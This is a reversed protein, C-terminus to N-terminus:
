SVDISLSVVQNWDLKIALLVVQSFFSGSLNLAISVEVSM